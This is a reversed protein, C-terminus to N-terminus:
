HVTYNKSKLYSLHRLITNCKHHLSTQMVSTSCLQLPKFPMDGNSQNCLQLNSCFNHEVNNNYYMCSTKELPELFFICTKQLGTTQCSGVSWLLLQQKQIIRGTVFPIDLFFFYVTSYGFIGDATGQVEHLLVALEQIWYGVSLIFM